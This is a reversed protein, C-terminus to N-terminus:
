RQTPPNTSGNGQILSRRPNRTSSAENPYTMNSPISANPDGLYLQSEISEPQMPQLMPQQMPQQMPQLMQQQMPQQQMPDTLMQMESPM